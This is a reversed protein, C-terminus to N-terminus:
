EKVIGSPAPQQESLSPNNQVVKEIGQLLDPARQHAGLYGLWLCNAFFLVALIRTFKTLFTASGQAGFLTQSAGSGFSAGMDAGKGHQLLVLSILGLCILVHLVLFFQFM